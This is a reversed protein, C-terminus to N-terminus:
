GSSAASSASSAEAPKTPNAPQTEPKKTDDKTQTDTKKQEDKKPEDQPVTPAACQGAAALALLVVTKDDKAGAVDTALKGLIANISNLKHQEAGTIQDAESKWSASIGTTGGLVGWAKASALGSAGLATGVAAVIIIPVNSNYWNTQQKQFKTAAKACFRGAFSVARMGCNVTCNELFKVNETWDDETSPSFMRAEKSFTVGDGRNQASVTAPLILSLMVVSAIAKSVTKM